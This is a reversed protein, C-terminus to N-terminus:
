RRTRRLQSVDHTDAAGPVPGASAQPSGGGLAVFLAATDTYRQALVQVFGIRARSYGAEASLLALYDVAGVRYQDQTLHLTTTASRLEDDLANLAAADHQLARLADAVQQFAGLVTVKYQSFSVSYAAQAAHKQAELTGGEFIPATLDGALSWVRNASDFLTSPKLSQGGFSATIELLPYMRAVAEGVAANAARLQAEAARIDPRNAVLSSPLSVPLKGPLHLQTLSLVKRKWQTPYRGSLAALADQDRDLAEMLPPLAAEDSALQSKQAVVGLYSAAGMQYQQQTLTLLRKENKIIERTAAIQAQFSAAGLATVVVNGEVSLRAADLADRAIDEQAQAQRYVFRNIGFVDPYYSVNVNGTYLSFTNGPSGGGFQASSNRLREASLGANVQPYFIGMVARLNAHAERLSAQAAHLSPNRALAQDVLRDLRSSQFMRWWDGAPEQGYEFVQAGKVPPPGASVFHKVPPPPPRHYVPGIACGALSLLIAAAGLSRGGACNRRPVPVAQSFSSAARM